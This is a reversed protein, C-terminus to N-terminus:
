EMRMSTTSPPVSSWPQPMSTIRSPTSSACALQRRGRRRVEARDGRIGQQTGRARRRAWVAAYGADASSSTPRCLRVRGTRVRRGRRGFDGHELLLDAMRHHIRRRTPTRRPVIRPLRRYWRRAERLARPVRGREAEPEQYLAHYHSALDELNGKLYAIVEPREEPAFRQWYESGLDYRAAFDKKSELVLKPFGGAEYIEVIRMGFHPSVRHLPYLDVFTGYADAADQYRLKEFYFEGLHSYIRDEYSRAGERAFYDRVSDSGGLSSFSLSVVRFTDAIRREEDEDGREDFDYGGSVKYDLLAM